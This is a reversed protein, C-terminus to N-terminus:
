KPEETTAVMTFQTTITLERRTAFWSDATLGRVVDDQGLSKSQPKWGAKEVRVETRGLVARVAARRRVIDEGFWRLGRRVIGERITGPIDVTLTLAGSDDTTGSAVHEPLLIRIGAAPREQLWAIDVAAAPIPRGDADHLLVTLTAPLQYPVEDTTLADLLALITATALLWLLRRVFKKM